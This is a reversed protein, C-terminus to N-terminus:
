CSTSGLATKILLRIYKSFLHRNGFSLFLLRYLTISMLKDNSTNLCRSTIRKLKRIISTPYHRSLMQIYSNINHVNRSAVLREFHILVFRFFQKRRRTYDPLTTLSLLTKNFLYVTSDCKEQSVTNACMNTSSYFMRYYYDPSLKDAFSHKLGGLIMPIAYSVDSYIKVREDWPYNIISQRKYINCWISFAYDAQLLRGLIDKRGKKKGFYINSYFFPDGNDTTTFGQAIFTAYDLDPHQEMFHIRDYFCDDSILDDADFHIIYKGKSSEFGINRCVVSGKPSRNRCLLIIRPDKDCYCKVISITNDTSGDDVVILEWNQFSQRLCCDLMEKLYNGNNYCPIIISLIPSSM